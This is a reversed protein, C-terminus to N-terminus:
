CPSATPCGTSQDFTSVLRALVKTQDDFRRVTVTVRKVDRGPAGGSGGGPLTRVYTDLRYQFNDPGTVPMQVPKCEAAASATCGPVVTQSAASVWEADSTHTADAASVGTTDLGINAWVLARYLEIQKEGLASATSARSARLIAFAGANFTAYIAFIAITIITLAILLEVLGFGREDRRLREAPRRIM